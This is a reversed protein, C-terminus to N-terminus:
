GWQDAMAEAIGRFTKSRNKGGSAFKRGRYNEKQMRGGGGCIFPQYEGLIKTPNLEPLGKLWLYTKKSFPEGFMYPQISQTAKPLNYISMPIPNEICIRDCDAHYIRMFFERALMGERLRRVNVMQFQGYPPFEKIEKRFM